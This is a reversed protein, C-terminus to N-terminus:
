RHSAVNKLPVDCGAWTTAIEARHAGHRRPAYCVGVQWDSVLQVDLHERLDPEFAYCLSATEFDALEDGLYNDLSDTESFFRALDITKPRYVRTKKKTDQATTATTASEANTASREM